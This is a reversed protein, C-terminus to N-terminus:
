FNGAKIHFGPFRLNMGVNVFPPWNLETRVENIERLDLVDKDGCYGRRKLVEFWRKQANRAGGNTSCDGDV